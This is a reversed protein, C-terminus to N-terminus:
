ARARRARPHAAPRRRSAPDAGSQHELPRHRPADFVITRSTEALREEAPGWMDAHGGLGNILLLPHGDGQERFYLRLGRVTVFGDRPPPADDPEWAHAPAASMAQMMGSRGAGKVRVHTALRDIPLYEEAM